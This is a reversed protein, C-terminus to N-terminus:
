RPCSRASCIAGRSRIEVGDLDGRRCRDAAARYLDVAEDMEPETIARAPQRTLESVHVSASVVDPMGIEGAGPHMLQALMRGGEAHVAEALRQYGPGGSM